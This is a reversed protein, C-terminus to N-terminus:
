NVLDFSGAFSLIQVAGILRSYRCAGIPATSYEMVHVVMGVVAKSNGKNKNSKRIRLPTM